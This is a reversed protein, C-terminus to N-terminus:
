GFQGPGLAFFIIFTIITAVSVPATWKAGTPDEAYIRQSVSISSKTYLLYLLRKSWAPLLLHGRYLIIM